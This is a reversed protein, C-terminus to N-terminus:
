PVNWHYHGNADPGKGGCIYTRGNAAVGATGVLADPCFAGPTVDSAPAEAPAETAQEPEVEPAPEPEAPAVEPVPAPEPEVVPAPPSLVLRVESGPAVPTGASPEQGVISWGTWDSQTSGDSASMTVSLGSAKLEAVADTPARGGYSALVVPTPTPTPTATKAPTPTKTPTATPTPTSAAAVAADADAPDAQPASAHTPSLLAGVLLVAASIGLAAGGARRTPALNLFSPRRKVLTYIGAGIGFLALAVLFGGFGNTGAGILAVLLALAAVIYTSLTPRWARLSGPTPSAPRRTALAAPRADPIQDLSPLGPTPPVYPPPTSAAASAPAAPAGSSVPETPGPATPSGSSVPETPGPATPGTSTGWASTFGTWRAGDWWRQAAPNKPDAYWGPPTTTM